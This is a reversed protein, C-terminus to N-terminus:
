WDAPLPVTPGTQLWDFYWAFRSPSLGLRAHWRKFYRELSASGPHTARHYLIFDKANQVKDAVLMANVDDLPSLGIAEPSAPAHRALCANAINRYEFALAAVPLRETLAGLQAFATPLAADGQILPHLCFARQADTSAHIHNMIALGEDIHNMLAVGSRRATRAGYHAAIAKYELWELHRGAVTFPVGARTLLAELACDPGTVVPAEARALHRKLHGRGRQSALVYVSQYRAQDPGLSWVRAGWPTGDHALTDGGPLVKFGDYLGQIARGHLYGFAEDLTDANPDFRAM